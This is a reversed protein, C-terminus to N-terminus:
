PTQSSWRSADGSEFGDIFISGTTLAHASKENTHETGTFTGATFEDVSLDVDFDDATGFINDPGVGVTGPLNGGQDMISPDSSAAFQETHWSGLYHGAEHVVINGVGTGVLDIQTAGGGVGFQNLSNPGGGADSLLDLLIVASEETGFNGPDITQAIGITSIQFEAITGGVILRSVNTQGFPDAHDRSNLIEVGFAPNSAMALDATITEDVSALISDIVASEDGPGLGWGALFTSLPSLTRIGPPGGFIGSDIMAGDFDIFLTQIGGAALVSRAAVLQLTYAGSGTRM